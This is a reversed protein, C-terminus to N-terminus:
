KTKYVIPCSKSVLNSVKENIILAITDLQVSKANKIFKNKSIMNKKVKLATDLQVSPCQYDIPKHGITDM